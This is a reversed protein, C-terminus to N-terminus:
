SFIYGFCNNFMVTWLSFLVHRKGIKVSRFSVRPESEPESPESGGGHAEDDDIKDDDSETNEDVSEIDSEPDQDGKFNKALPIDEM